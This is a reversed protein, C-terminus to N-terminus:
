QLLEVVAKEVYPKVTEYIKRHGSTNPHLGDNSIDNELLINSLSIFSGKNEKCFNSLYNYFDIASSITYHKTTDWTIPTIKNEFPTTPGVFIAKANMNRAHKLLSDLNQSFKEPSVRPKLEPEILASDNLGISYIVLNPKRYKMESLSREVMENTTDGSIGLNYLIHGNKALDLQLLTVWGAHELDGEGWTTSGGFVCIRM